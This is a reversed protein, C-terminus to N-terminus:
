SASHEANTVIMILKRLIRDVRSMVFLLYDSLSLKLPFKKKRNRNDMPRVLYMDNTAM